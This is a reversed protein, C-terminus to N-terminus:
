ESLKPIVKKFIIVLPTEQFCITGSAEWPMGVIYTNNEGRSFTGPSSNFWVYSTDSEFIWTGESIDVLMM